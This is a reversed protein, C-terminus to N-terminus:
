YCLRTKKLQRYKHIIFEQIYKNDKGRDKYNYFDLFTLHSCTYNLSWILLQKNITLVFFPSTM